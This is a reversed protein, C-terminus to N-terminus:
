QDKPRDREKIKGLEETLDKALLNLCENFDGPPFNETRWFQKIHGNEIHWVAIMCHGSERAEKIANHIEISPPVPEGKVKAMMEALINQPIPGTVPSPMIIPQDLIPVAQVAENGNQNALTM